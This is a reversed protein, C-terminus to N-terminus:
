QATGSKLLTNCASLKSTVNLWNKETFWQCQSAWNNARRDQIGSTGPELWLKSVPQRSLYNLKEKNKGQLHQSPVEISPWPKKQGCGKLNMIWQDYQWEINYLWLYLCYQETFRCFIAVKRKNQALLPCTSLWYYYAYKTGVTSVLTWHTTTHMNQALLPCLHETLLLICKKRREGVGLHLISSKFYICFLVYM